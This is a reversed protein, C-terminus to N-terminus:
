PLLRARIEAGTPTAVVLPLAGSEADGLSVHISADDHAGATTADAVRVPRGLADGLPALADDDIASGILLFGEDAGDAILPKIAIWHPGREDTMLGYESEGSELARAVAPVASLDPTKSFALDTGALARGDVDLVAARDLAFEARRENLIDVLSSVDAGASTEAAMATAIYRVFARNNAILEGRAALRERARDSALRLVVPSAIELAARAAVRERDAAVFLAIATAGIVLLTLLEAFLWFSLKWNM